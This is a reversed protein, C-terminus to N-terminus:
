RPYRRMVRVKGTSSRARRTNQSTVPASFRAANAPKNAPSAASGADRTRALSRCTIASTAAPLYHRTDSIDSFRIPCSADAGGAAGAAEIWANSENMFRATSELDLEPSISVLLFVAHVAFAAVSQLLRCATGMALRWHEAYTIGQQHPHETFPNM